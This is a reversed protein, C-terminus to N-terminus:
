SQILKLLQPYIKESRLKATEIRFSEKPKTFEENAIKTYFNIHNNIKIALKEKGVDSMSAITEKVDTVKGFLDSVVADKESMMQQKTLAM